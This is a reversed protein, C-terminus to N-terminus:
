SDFFNELQDISLGKYGLDSPTVQEKKDQSVCHEIIDNLIKKYADILANITEENFQQHSYSISTRLQKNIVIATIVLEHERKGEPSINRGSPEEAIDMSLQEVNEDVQGLYNFIIQPQYDLSIGEKHKEDTLYKLIGFGIGRNPVKRLREKIIKIQYALNDRHAVELVVPYISTFWGITRSVDIDNLIDERGHGELDIVLEGLDFVKNLALGLATLLVDNIETKYTQNVKTLLATTKQQSLTVNVMREDKRMNFGEPKDKILNPINGALINNWYTIEELQKDSNAYEL